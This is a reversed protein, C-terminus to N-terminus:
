PQSSQREGAVALAAVLATPRARPNAPLRMSVTRRGAPPQLITTRLDAFGSNGADPASSHERAGRKQARNGVVGPRQGSSTGRSLYSDCVLDRILNGTTRMPGHSRTAARSGGPCEGPRRGCRSRPKHAVAGRNPLDSAVIAACGVSKGPPCSQLSRGTFDGQTSGAQSCPCAHDIGIRAALYFGIRPISRSVLWYLRPPEESATVSPVFRRWLM